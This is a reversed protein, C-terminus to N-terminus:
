KSDAEAASSGGAQSESGAAAAASAVATEGPSEASPAEAAAPSEGPAGSAPADEKSSAPPAAAAAAGGEPGGGAEPDKTSGKGGGGKGRGAGKGKGRGAKGSGAAAADPAGLATLDKAQPMGQRNTEVLFTVETGVQMDGFQAKHLFVDRNFQAHTEACEIFGFGKEVNFSKIRGRYRGGVGPAGEMPFPAMPYVGPWQMMPSFGFSGALPWPYGLQPLDGPSFAGSPVFPQAEQRLGGGSGRKEPQEGALAGSTAKRETKSYAKVFMGEPTEKLKYRLKQANKDVIVAMLTEQSVDELIDASLLDDVKVWGETDMKVNVKQAGHRLIWSVKKSIGTREDDDPELSKILELTRQKSMKRARAPAEAAEPAM